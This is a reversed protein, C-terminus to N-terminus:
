RASENEASDEFQSPRGGSSKRRLWPFSSRFAASSHSRLFSRAALIRAPRISAIVRTVITPAQIAAQGIILSHSELHAVRGERSPGGPTRFTVARKTSTIAMVDELPSQASFLM